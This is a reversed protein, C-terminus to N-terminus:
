GTGLQGGTIRSFIWDRFKGLVATPFVFGANAWCAQAYPCEYFVHWYSEAPHNCLVCSHPVQIGRQILMDRTSICERCLRWLFVQMKPPILLRWLKVWPGNVHLALAVSLIEM